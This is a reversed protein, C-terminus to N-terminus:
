IFRVKTAPSQKYNYIDEMMKIYTVTDPCHVVKRSLYELKEMMRKHDYQENSFITRMALAFYRRKWAAYYQGIEKLMKIRATGQNLEKVKYLGAKFDRHSGKGRNNSPDLMIMTVSLPLKYTEMVQKLLIYDKNALACQSHLIDYFNWNRTGTNLRQIEPLGVDAEVKMYFVPRELITRAMFRHQGDIIEMKNNVTIPDLHHLDEEQMSNVLENVHKQVIPRNGKILKLNGYEKTTYVTVRGM